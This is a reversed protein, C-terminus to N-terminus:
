NSSVRPHSGATPLTYCTRYFLRRPKLKMPDAQSNWDTGIASPWRLFSSVVDLPKEPEFSLMGDMLDEWPLLEFSEVMLEFPNPVLKHM